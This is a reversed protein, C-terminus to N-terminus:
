STEESDSYRTARRGRRYFTLKPIAGGRPDLRPPTAAMAQDRLGPSNDEEESSSGSSLRRPRRRGAAASPGASLPVADQPFPAGPSTSGAVPPVLLPVDHQFVMPATHPSLSAVHESAKVGTVLDEVLYNLESLKKLIKVPGVRKATFKGMIKDTADSHIYHTVWALDGVDFSIEKRRTDYYKKYKQQAVAVNQEVTRFAHQLAHFLYVKYNDRDLDADVLPAAVMEQPTIVERGFMLYAPIEGTSEHISTRLAFSLPPLFEQWRNHPVENLYKAIYNVINRNVRESQNAQPRGVSTLRHDIGLLKLTEVFLRSTFYTARDSVLTTPVGYRCIIETYLKYALTKAKTNPVPILEVFKTFGDVVVLVYRNKSLSLTYPGIIDCYVVKMPANIQSPILKGFPMQNPFRYQQCIQCGAVFRYVLKRLKPFDYKAKIRSFTKYAGMHGSMADEHMSKLVKAHLAVPLALRHHYFIRTGERADVPTPRKFLVGSHIEYENALALLKQNLGQIGPVTGEKLFDIIPKLFPDQSQLQIIQETSVNFDILSPVDL